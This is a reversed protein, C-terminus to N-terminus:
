STDGDKFKYYGGNQLINHMTHKVRHWIKKFFNGGSVFELQEESLEQGEEHAAFLAMASGIQEIDEDKDLNLGVTEMEAKIDEDLEKNLLERLENIQAQAM